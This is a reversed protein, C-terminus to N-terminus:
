GQTTVGTGTVGTSDGGLGLHGGAMAALGFRHTPIACLVQSDQTELFSFSSPFFRPIPYFRGLSIGLPQKPSSLWFGATHARSAGLPASNGFGVRWIGATIDGLQGQRPGASGWCPPNTHTALGGFGQATRSTKLIKPSSMLVRIAGLMREQEGLFRKVGSFESSCKNRRKVKGETQESHSSVPVTGNVEDFHEGLHVNGIQGWSKYYIGKNKKKSEM